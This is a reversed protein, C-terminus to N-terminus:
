DMAIIALTGDADAIAALTGANEQVATPSM